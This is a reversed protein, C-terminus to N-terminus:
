IAVQTALWVNEHFVRPAFQKPDRYTGGIRDFWMFLHGYNFKFFKHHVHHDAPTGFGLWRFMTDWPFVYESHILTLWCAYTSGFAMYTWVNVNRVINATMFLPVIIMCMTDPLSGNFADFLRPNVFRHHPKHSLKYFAPSVIHELLHMTYQIGDQVVLCLFTEKYQISGEFSYYQEPMLHFMWTVSLYTVLLVFGEPQSFHTALGETFRYPRAGATQISLPEKQLSLFGYKYLYFIICVWFQGVAVALIGLTLGLPKPRKDTSPDYEYWHVPFLQQYSTPSYPSTLLLPVSLMLPWVLASTWSMIKTMASAPINNKHNNNPSSSSLTRTEDMASDPLPQHRLNKDHNNTVAKDAPSAQGPLQSVTKHRAMAITHKSTLPSHLSTGTPEFDQYLEKNLRRQEGKLYLSLVITPSHHFSLLFLWCFCFSYDRLGRRARWGVKDCHSQCLWM